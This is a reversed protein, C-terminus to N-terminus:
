SGFRLERFKEFCEASSYSPTFGFETKLRHNGLVPRYRLFKVQEPGSQTLHLTKAVRLASELVVSPLAVYPKGLRQAIEALTIVGDGTLNYIGTRRERIGKVICCAVDSDWILVFPADSGRVGVIFPREFLATIPNAASDGLVTGPRFILQALEPHAERARALMEEVLRKHRSYAFEDNGRLADTESLLTPNDAHYGYAAGSSTYVLHSVGARLACDLVNQTGIVDISYELDRSSHKGPTVVAALHVVTDIQEAVLLDALNSDRIDGARYQVGSLREREPPLRLDLAVVNEIGELDTALRAVVQHGILGSAGTVLVCRAARTATM